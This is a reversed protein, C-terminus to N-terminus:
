YEIKIIGFYKHDEVSPPSKPANGPPPAAPQEAGKANVGVEVKVKANYKSSRIQIKRAKDAKEIAKGIKSDKGGLKDVGDGAKEIPDFGFLKGALEITIDAVQYSGAFSGQASTL